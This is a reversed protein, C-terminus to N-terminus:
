VTICSFNITQLGDHEGMVANEFNKSIFRDYIDVDKSQDVGKTMIYSWFKDEYFHINIPVFCQQKVVQGKLETHM